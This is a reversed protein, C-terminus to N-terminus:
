QAGPSGLAGAYGQGSDSAGRLDPRGGLGHVGQAAQQQAARRFGRAALNEDLQGTLGALFVELREGRGEQGGRLELPSSGASPFPSISSILFHGSPDPAWKRM